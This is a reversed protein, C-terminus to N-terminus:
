GRHVINALAEGRALRGINDAMTQQRRRITGTTWGSMHPTLVINPLTHFPLRSPLTEPTAPSPYLYWTDIVANIRRSALADYLAQEDIVPGRGVNIITAGNRMAALASTGVIGRTGEALPLSVVITDASGMFTDLQDLTFADDVLDGVPVPSRNAAIVHMGFARARRAVEKGIHGFGLLGISSGSVEKRAAEPTGAWYTWKGARLDRDATPLPVQRLLLATMVYEAIAHEHGFCCCLPVGPPLSARDVGDTGAAPTHYLRLREPRPLSADLKLGILVDAEAFQRRQANSLNADPVAAIDHGPGLLDAFGPMFGQPNRGVFVIKM